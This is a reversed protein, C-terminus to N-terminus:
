IFFCEFAVNNCFLIKKYKRKNRTYYFHWIQSKPMTFREFTYFIIQM